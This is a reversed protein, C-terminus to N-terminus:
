DISSGNSQTTESNKVLEEVDEESLGSLRQAVEWVRDLAISSKKGLETIENDSFLREGKVNCISRACLGARVNRLALERKTGQIKLMSKEYEDREQGSLGRVYVAGGWEPVNVLEIKIDNATLIDSKSLIKVDETM